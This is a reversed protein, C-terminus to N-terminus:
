RINTVDHGLARTVTCARKLDAPTQAALRGTSPAVNYAQMQKGTTVIRQICQSEPQPWLYVTSWSNPAGGPLGPGWTCNEPKNYKTCPNQVDSISSM